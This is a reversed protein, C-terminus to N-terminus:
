LPPRMFIVLIVAPFLHVEAVGGAPHGYPGRAEMGQLSYSVVGEGGVLVALSREVLWQSHGSCPAGGGGLFHEELVQQATSPCETGPSDGVPEPRSLAAECVSTM